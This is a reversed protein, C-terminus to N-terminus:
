KVELLTKFRNTAEQKSESIEAEDLTKSEEDFNKGTIYRVGEKTQAEIMFAASKPAKRVIRFNSIECEKIEEKDEEKNESTLLSDPVDVGTDISLNAGAEEVEETPEEAPVDVCEEPFLDCAIEKIANFNSKVAEKEEDSLTELEAVLDEKPISALVELKSIISEEKPEEPVEEEEKVGCEAIEESDNLEKLKDEIKSVELELDARDKLLSEKEDEAASNLADDISTLRYSIEKLKENLINIDDKKFDEETPTEIDGENFVNNFAKTFAEKDENSLDNWSGSKNFKDSDIANYVSEPTKNERSEFGEYIADWAWSSDDKLSDPLSSEKLSKKMRFERYDQNLMQYLNM